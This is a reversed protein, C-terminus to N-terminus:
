KTCKHTFNHTFICYLNVLMKQIEIMLTSIVSEYNVHMIQCCKNRDLSSLMETELKAIGAKYWNLQLPQKAPKQNIINIHASLGFHCSSHIPTTSKYPLPNPIPSCNGKERFSLDYEWLVSLTGCKNVMELRLSHQKSSSTVPLVISYQKNGCNGLTLDQLSTLITLM